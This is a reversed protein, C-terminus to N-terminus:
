SIKIKQEEIWNSYSIHADGFLHYLRWGSSLM